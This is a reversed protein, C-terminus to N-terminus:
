KDIGRQLQNKIFIVSSIIDKRRIYIFIFLILLYIVSAILINFFWSSLVFLSVIIVELFNNKYEKINIVKSLIYELVICRLAIVFLISLVALHLDKLVITTLLALLSSLILSISNVILMTKEERITKLFPNILLSMRGEYIIMPFLLVMYVLSEEYNPLWITLVYRLPFYLILCVFMVVTFVSRIRNYITSYKDENTKRLLPFIVIGLAGIFITLFKSVSLTLSVKGFTEIDWTREIGLRFVGIILMSATNAFMLKIGVSINNFIETFSLKFKSISVFVFNRCYYIALVLSLIKAIIDVFIFVKFDIIRLLLVMIVLVVYTLRDFILIISSKKFMNTAQLLYVFLYRVNISVMYIATLYIIDRREINEIFNWSSFIILAGIIIQLIFLSLFQSFLTNKDLDEINKGGYRLYIGDSWGFQLFPVYASYFMFLQWYGYDETGLVKPFILVSLSSVIIVTLNSTLTYSFNKLFTKM